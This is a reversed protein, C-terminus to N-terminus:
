VGAETVAIWVRSSPCRPPCFRGRKILNPLPRLFCKLSASPCLM